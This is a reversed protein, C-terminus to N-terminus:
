SQALRDQREDALVVSVRRKVLIRWKFVGATCHNITAPFHNKFYSLPFDHYASDFWSVSRSQVPHCASFNGRNKIVVKIGSKGM